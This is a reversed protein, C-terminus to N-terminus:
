ERNSFKHMSVQAISNSFSKDQLIKRRMTEIEGTPLVQTSKNTSTSKHVEETNQRKTMKPIKEMFFKTISNVPNDQNAKSDGGTNHGHGPPYGYNLGGYMEGSGTTNYGSAGGKVFPNSSSYVNNNYSATRKNGMIQSGSGLGINSYNPKMDFRELVVVVDEGVIGLEKLTKKADVKSHSTPNTSLETVGGFSGGSSGAGFGIEVSKNEYSNFLLRQNQPEIGTEAEILAQLNELEMENPIEIKFTKTDQVVSIIM